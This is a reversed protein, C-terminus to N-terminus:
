SSIVLTREHLSMITIPILVNLSHYTLCLYSWSTNVIRCTFSPYICTTMYYSFSIFYTITRSIHYISMNIIHYITICYTITHYTYSSINHRRFQTYIAHYSHCSIVIFSLFYLGTLIIYSILVSSHSVTHYSHHVIRSIIQLVIHYTCFVLPIIFVFFHQSRM